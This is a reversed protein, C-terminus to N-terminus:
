NEIAQILGGRPTEPEPRPLAQGVATNNEASSTTNKRLVKMAVYGKQGNWEVRCWDNEVICEIEKGKPIQTIINGNPADRLNVNGATYYNSDNNNLILFPLMLAFVIWGACGGTKKTCGCHPCASASSSRMRGCDPCKILM